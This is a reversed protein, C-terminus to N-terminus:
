MDESNMLASHPCRNQIPKPWESAQRGKYGENGEARRAKHGIRLM